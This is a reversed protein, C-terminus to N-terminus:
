VTSILKEAQAGFRDALHQAREAEQPEGRRRLEIAVRPLLEANDLPNKWGGRLTALHEKFLRWEDWRVGATWTNPWKAGGSDAGLRFLWLPFLGLAGVISVPSYVISRLMRHRLCWVGTVRRFILHFDAKRLSANVRGCTQCANQHQYGM